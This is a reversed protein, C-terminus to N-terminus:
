EKRKLVVVVVTVCTFQLNPQNSSEEFAPTSEKSSPAQQKKDILTGTSMLMADGGTKQVDASKKNWM